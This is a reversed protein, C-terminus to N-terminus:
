IRKLIMDGCQLDVALRPLQVSRRLSGSKRRQRGALEPHGSRAIKVTDEVLRPGWKALGVQVPSGPLDESVRVDVLLLMIRRQM